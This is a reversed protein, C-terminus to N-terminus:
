LTNPQSPEVVASTIIAAISIASASPHVHEVHRDARGELPRLVRGRGGGVQQDVRCPRRRRSRCCRHWRRRSRRRGPGRRWRSRRRTRRCCWTESLENVMEGSSAGMPYPVAAADGCGGVDPDRGIVRVPVTVDGSSAHAGIAASRPPVAASIRRPVQGNWSLASLAWCAPAAATTRYLLTAPRNLGVTAPVGGIVIGTTAIESTSPARISLRSAEPGDGSRSRRVARTWWGSRRASRTTRSSRGTARGASLGSM